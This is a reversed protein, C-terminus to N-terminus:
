GRFAVFRQASPNLSLITKPLTVIVDGPPAPPPTQGGANIITPGAAQQQATMADSTAREIQIGSDTERAVVQGEMGANRIIEQAEELDNSKRNFFGSTEAKVKEQLRAIQENSPGGQEAMVQKNFDEATLEPNVEQAELFAYRNEPPVAEPIGVREPDNEILWNVAEEKEEDSSLPNTLTLEKRRGESFIYGGADYAVLGATVGLGVGTSAAAAGVAVRAAFKAAIKGAVKRQTRKQVNQRVNDNVATPRASTKNTQSDKVFRGTKEDVLQGASNLKTGTPLKAPTKGLMKKAGYAGALSGAGIAGARGPNESAANFLSKSSEAILLGALAAGYNVFSNDMKELAKVLKEGQKKTISPEEGRVDKLIDDGDTKKPTQGGSTKSKLDKLVSTNEAIEELYKDSTNELQEGLNNAPSTSVIQKGTQVARAEDRMQESSFMKALKSDAGFATAPSISKRFINGFGSTDQSVGLLAKLLSKNAM